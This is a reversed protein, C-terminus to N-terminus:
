IMGWSSYSVALSEQQDRTCIGTSAVRLNFSLKAQALVSKLMDLHSPLTDDIAHAKSFKVGMLSPRRWVPVLEFAMCTRLNLLWSGPAVARDQSIRLQAGELSADRILCNTTAAEDFDFIVGASFEPDRPGSRARHNTPIGLM